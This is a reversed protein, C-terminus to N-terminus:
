AGKSGLRKSAFALTVTVCAVLASFGACAGMVWPQEAVGGLASLWMFALQANVIVIAPLLRVGKPLMSGLPYVTSAFVVDGAAALAVTPAFLDFPEYFPFAVSAVLAVGLMWALYAASLALGALWDALMNEPLAGEEPTNARQRWRGYVCMYPVIGACVGVLAASSGAMAMRATAVAFLVAAVPTPRFSRIRDAVRELM